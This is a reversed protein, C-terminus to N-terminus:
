CATGPFKVNQPKERNDRDRPSRRAKLYIAMVRDCVVECFGGMRVPPKKRIDWKREESRCVGKRRAIRLVFSRVERDLPMKVLGGGGEM